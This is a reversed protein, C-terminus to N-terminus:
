KRAAEADGFLLREDPRPQWKVGARVGYAQVENNVTRGTVIVNWHRRDLAKGSFDDFFVAPAPPPGPLLMVAAAFAIGLRLIM